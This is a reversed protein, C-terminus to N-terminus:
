IQKVRFQNLVIKEGLALISASPSQGHNTKEYGIHSFIESYCYIVTPVLNLDWLTVKLLMKSFLHRSLSSLWM